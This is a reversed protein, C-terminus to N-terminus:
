LNNNCLHLVLTILFDNYPKRSSNQGNIVCHDNILTKELNRM